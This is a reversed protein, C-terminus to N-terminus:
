RTATADDERLAASLTNIAPEVKEKFERLNVYDGTASPYFYRWVSSPKSDYTKLDELADLAQLAVKRLDSM